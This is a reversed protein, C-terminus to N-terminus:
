IIKMSNPKTPFSDFILNLIPIKFNIETVNKIFKMQQELRIVSLLQMVINLDKKKM